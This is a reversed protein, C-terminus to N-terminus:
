VLMIILIMNNVVVMVVLILAARKRMGFEQLFFALVWCYTLEDEIVLKGLVWM